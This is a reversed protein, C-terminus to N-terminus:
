KWCIVDFHGALLSAVLGGSRRKELFASLRANYEVIHRRGPVGWRFVNKPLIMYNKPRIEYRTFGAGNLIRRVQGLSYQRMWNRKRRYRLLQTVIWTQTGSVSVPNVFCDGFYAVGGARLIRRVELLVDAMNSRDIHQLVATSNVVDVCADAFPLDRLDARILVPALNMARAVRACEALMVDSIDIGVSLAPRQDGMVKLLTRGYGCGLDLFVKGNTDLQGLYAPMKVFPGPAESSSDIAAASRIPDLSAEADWVERTRQDSISYRILASPPSGSRLSCSLCALGAPTLEAVHECRPCRIAVM